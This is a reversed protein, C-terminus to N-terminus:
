EHQGQGDAWRRQKSSQARVEPQRRDGCDNHKNTRWGSCSQQRGEMAHHLDCAAIVVPADPTSSASPLTAAACKVPAPVACM